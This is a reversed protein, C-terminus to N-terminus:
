SPRLIKKCRESKFRQLVLLSHPNMSIFWNRIPGNSRMCLYFRCMIFRFYYISLYNAWPLKSITKRVATNEPVCCIVMREKGLRAAEACASVLLREAIGLGRKDAKVILHTVYASNGPMKEDFDLFDLEGIELELWCSGVAVDDLFAVFLRFYPRALHERAQDFTLWGIVHETRLEAIDISTITLRSEAPELETIPLGLDFFLFSRLRFRLGLRELYYRLVRPFKLM